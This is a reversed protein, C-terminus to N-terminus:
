VIVARVTLLATRLIAHLKLEARLTPVAVSARSRGEKPWALISFFEVEEVSSHAGFTVWACDEQCTYFM